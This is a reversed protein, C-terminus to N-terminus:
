VFTFLFSQANSYLTEYISRKLGDMEHMKVSKTMSFKFTLNFVLKFLDLINLKNKLDDNMNKQMM